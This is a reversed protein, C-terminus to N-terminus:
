LSFPICPCTVCPWCQTLPFLWVIFSDWCYLNFTDYLSWSLIHGSMLFVSLASDFLGVPVCRHMCVNLLFSPMHLIWKNHETTLPPSSSNPLLLSFIYICPLCLDHSLPYFPRDRDSVRKFKDWTGVNGLSLASTWLPFVWLASLGWFHQHQMSCKQPNQTHHLHTTKNRLAIHM